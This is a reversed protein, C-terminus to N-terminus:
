PRKIFKVHLSRDEISYNFLYKSLIFVKIIIIYMDKADNPKACSGIIWSFLSVSSFTAM